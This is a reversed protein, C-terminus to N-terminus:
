KKEVNTVKVKHDYWKAKKGILAVDFEEDIVPVDVVFAYAEDETGDEYKVTVSEPQLLNEEDNEADAALGNYLNLIGTGALVIRISMKGDKVTLQGKGNETENVHFMGSDTEFDAIYEGDELVVAEPVETEDAPEEAIKEEEVVEEPEVAEEPEVVEEPKEEVEEKTIQQSEAAKSTNTGCASLALVCSLALMLTVLNKKM